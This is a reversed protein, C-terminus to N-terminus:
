AKLLNMRYSLELRQWLKILMVQKVGEEEEGRELQEVLLSMLLVNNYLLLTKNFGQSAMRIVTTTTLTTM